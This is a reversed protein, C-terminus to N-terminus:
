RTPRGVKRWASRIAARMHPENSDWDPSCRAGWVDMADEVSRKAAADIAADGTAKGEWLWCALEFAARSGGVKGPYWEDGQAVGGLLAKIVGGARGSDGVRALKQKQRYLERAAYKSMGAFKEIIPAPEQGATDVIKTPTPKWVCEMVEGYEMWCFTDAEWTTRYLGTREHRSNTVRILSQPSDPGADRTMGYCISDHLRRQMEVAAESSSFIPTGVQSADFHIHFGKSGSFSVYVREMDFKHREMRRLVEQADEFSDLLNRRDLDITFRPVYVPADYRGAEASSRWRGISTFCPQESGDQHVQEMWREALGYKPKTRVGKLKPNGVLIEGIRFDRHDGLFFIRYGRVVDVHEEGDAFLDPCLQYLKGYKGRTSPHVMGLDTVYPTRSLAELARRLAGRSFERGVTAFLDDQLSQLSGWAQHLDVTVTGKPTTVTKPETVVAGGLLWGLTIHHLPNAKIPGLYDFASRPIAAVRYADPRAKEYRAVKSVHASSPAAM